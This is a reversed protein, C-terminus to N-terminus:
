CAASRFTQLRRGCAPPSVGMKTALDREGRELRRVLIERGKPALRANKHSNM